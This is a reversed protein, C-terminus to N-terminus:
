SMYTWKMEAIRVIVKGGPIIDKREVLLRAVQYDDDFVGAKQLADLLPKIPNDIDRKRNDPSHLQVELSITAGQFSKVGESAKAQTWKIWVESYFRKTEKSNPRAQYKRGNKTTLICGMTKYHNVTPPWPLEIKIM